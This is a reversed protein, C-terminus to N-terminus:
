DNHRAWFWSRRELKNMVGTKNKYPDYMEGTELRYKYSTSSGGDGNYFISIDSKDCITTTVFDYMDSLSMGTANDKLGNNRGDSSILITCDSKTQLIMSRTHYYDNIYGNLEGGKPVSYDGNEDVINYYGGVAWKYVQSNGEDDIYGHQLKEAFSEGNTDSYPVAVLTGDQKQCLAQMGVSKVKAENIYGDQERQIIEGDVIIPGGNLGCNMVVDAHTPESIVDSTCNKGGNEGIGFEDNPGFVTVLISVDYGLGNKATLEVTKGFGHSAIFDTLIKDSSDNDKNRSVAGDTSEDDDTIEDTFLGNMKSSSNSISSVLQILDNKVTTRADRMNSLEAIKNNNEIIQTQAIDYDSNHDYIYPDKSTGSGAIIIDKPVTDLSANIKKYEAIMSEIESIDADIDKQVAQIEELTPLVLDSNTSLNNFYVGMGISTGGISIRSLVNGIKEKNSEIKAHSQKLGDISNQANSIIKSNSNKNTEIGNKSLQNGNEKNNKKESVTNSSNGEDSSHGLSNNKIVNYINLLKSYLDKRKESKSTLDNSIIHMKDVIDADEVNSDNEYLKINNKTSHLLKEIADIDNAIINLVKSYQTLDSTINLDTNVDLDNHYVDSGIPKGDIIFNSLYLSIKKEDDLIKMYENEIIKFEEQIELM